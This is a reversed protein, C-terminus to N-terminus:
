TATVLGAALLEALREGITEHQTVEFAIALAALLGAETLPAEALADLIQPAPEVLIHTQGSPRHYLLTLGEAEERLCTGSPPAAFRRNM